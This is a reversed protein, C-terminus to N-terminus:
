KLIANVTCLFTNWSKNLHLKGDKWFKNRTFLVNMMAALKNKVKTIMQDYRQDYLLCWLEPYNPNKEGYLDIFLHSIKCM